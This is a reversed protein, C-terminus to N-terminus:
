VRKFLFFNPTRPYSIPEYSILILGKGVASPLYSLILYSSFKQDTSKRYTKTDPVPLSIIIFYVMAKLYKLLPM